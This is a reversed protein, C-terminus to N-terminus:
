FSETYNRLKHLDLETNVNLFKESLNAMDVVIKKHQADIVKQLSAELDLNSFFTKKYIACIPEYGGNVKPVICGVKGDVKEILKNAVAEDVLPMDCAVVFVYEGSTHKVGEKIGAIPSSIENNDAIVKADLMEVIKDKQEDNKVVVVVDDFLQRVNDHVHKILPKGDLLVLAKDEGLREAKGGALIICSVNNKM